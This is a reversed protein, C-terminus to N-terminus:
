GPTDADGGDSEQPERTEAGDDGDGGDPGQTETGDSPALTVQASSEESPSELPEEPPNLYALVIGIILVLTFAGVGALLAYLVPMLMGEKKEAPEEQQPNEEPEQVPEEGQVQEQEPELGRNEDAM